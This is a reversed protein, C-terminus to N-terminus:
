INAPLLFNMNKALPFFANRMPAGSELAMNALQRSLNIEVADHSMM